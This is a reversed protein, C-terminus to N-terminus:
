RTDQCPRLDTPLSCVDCPPPGALFVYAVLYAVDAATVQSSCNVDGSPPCPKPSQGSKFVYNVLMIIDETNLAGNDNIDGTYGIPCFVQYVINAIDYSLGMGIFVAVNGQGVLSDPLEGRAMIGQGLSTILRTPAVARVSSGAARRAKLDSGYTKAGEVMQNGNLRIIAFAPWSWLLLMACAWLMTGLYRRM